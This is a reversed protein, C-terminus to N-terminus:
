LPLESSSLYFFFHLIPHLDRSALSQNQITKQAFFDSVNKQHLFGNKESIPRLMLVKNKLDIRTHNEWFYNLNKKTLRIMM